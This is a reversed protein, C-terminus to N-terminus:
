FTYTTGFLATQEIKKHQLPTDKVSSEHVTSTVGGILYWRNSISYQGLIGLRAYSNTANIPASTTESYVFDNSYFQYVSQKHLYEIKATLLLTFKEQQLVRYNGQLYFAKKDSQNTVRTSFGSNANFSDNQFVSSMQLRNMSNNPQTSLSTINESSLSFGLAELDYDKAVVTFTLASSGWDNFLSTSDVQESSKKEDLAFTIPTVSFTLILLLIFKNLVKM